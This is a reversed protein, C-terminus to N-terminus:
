KTHRVKIWDVGAGIHRRVARMCEDVGLVDDPSM